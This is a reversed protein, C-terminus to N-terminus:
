RALRHLLGTAYDDRQCGVRVPLCRLAINQQSHDDPSYVHQQSGHVHPPFEGGERVM